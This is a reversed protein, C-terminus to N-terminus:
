HDLLGYHGPHACPPDYPLHPVYQKWIALTLTRETATCVSQVANDVDLNWMWITGGITGAALTRGDPSFAVSSVDSVSGTLPSSLSVPNAPDATNWLWVSGDNAGAALTRGDPSFAVSSVSGAPGTLASGLAVPNAPDATNVLWVEGDGDGAALTRSDPSFAVSSVANAPVTVVSSPFHGGGGARNRGGGQVARGDPTITAGLGTRQRLEGELQAPPSRQAAFPVVIKRQAM